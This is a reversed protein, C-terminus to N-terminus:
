RLTSPKINKYLSRIIDQVVPWFSKGSLHDFLFTDHTFVIVYMYMKFQVVKFFHRKTWLVHVVLLEWSLMGGVCQSYSLLIDSFHLYALQKNKSTFNSSRSIKSNCTYNANVILKNAMVGRKLTIQCYTKGSGVAWGGFAYATLQTPWMWCTAVLLQWIFYHGWSVCGLM